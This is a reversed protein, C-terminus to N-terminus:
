QQTSMRSTAILAKQAHCSAGELTHSGAPDVVMDAAAKVPVGHVALPQDRM